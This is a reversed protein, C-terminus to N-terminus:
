SAKWVVKNRGAHKAEYLLRDAQEIAQNIDGNSSLQVVGFSATLTHATAPIHLNMVSSRLREAVLVATHLSTSRILLVFEEGGFRAALDDQRVTRALLAGFEKLARDGAVHGWTDNVMKFHDLDCTMVAWGSHGYLELRKKVQEFFARRNLLRTLPDRSREHDLTQVISMATSTLIALAVWISIFMNTALMLLWFGSRTLEPQMERPILTALAFVRVFAYLLATLYSARLLTALPITRSRGSLISKIPLAVLLALGWNLIQLRLWLDDDIQSFYFLLGLTVLVIAGALRPHARGGFRLAVGHSLAWVGYLYMASLPLTWRALQENPMLSHIGMPIATSIYGSAIWLLYRHDRLRSWCYIMAIGLLAACAPVILVFYQNPSSM